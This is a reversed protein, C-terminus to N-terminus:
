DDWAWEDIEANVGPEEEPFDEPYETFLAECIRDYFEPLYEDTSAPIEVRYENSELYEGDQDYIRVMVRVGRMATTTTAM